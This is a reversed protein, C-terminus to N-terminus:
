LQTLKFGKKKLLEIAGDTGVLHGAGVIVIANQPGQLLKDFQPIWSATRDSILKKSISPADIKFDNLMKELAVSDGTRWAAVIEGFLKKENDIDELSKEVLLDEEAKNFGTLLGIQFDITELPIVRKGGDRALKIFHKDVGFEPDAGLATLELVEVTMIAVAPRYQEIAAMPLGIEDAHKKLSAYTKPALNQQLTQGQPLSIKGLMAMQQTPDDMKDIDTEFVAIQSNTFASEIVAPL